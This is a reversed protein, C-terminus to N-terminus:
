EGMLRYKNKKKNFPDEMGCRPQRMLEVTAEDLEGTPPLDNVGQFVRLAEIVEELYHPDQPDAPDNLYGYQRLYAKAEDFETWQAVECVAGRLHLLSLLLMWTYDM